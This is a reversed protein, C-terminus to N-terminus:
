GDFQQFAALRMGGEAPPQWALSGRQRRLMVRHVDGLQDKVIMVLLTPQERDDLLDVPRVGLRQGRDPSPQRGEELHVRRRLLRDEVGLQQLDPDGRPSLRPDFTLGQVGDVVVVLDPVRDRFGRPVRYAAIVPVRGHGGRVQGVAVVHGFFFALAQGIEAAQGPQLSAM